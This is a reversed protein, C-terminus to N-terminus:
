RHGDTASVTKTGAQGPQSTALFEKLVRGLAAGDRFGDIKEAVTGDPRLLVMMPFGNQGYMQKYKTEKDSNVKMWVFKDKLRSVRPDPITEAFTKKCWGCWDAYLIM